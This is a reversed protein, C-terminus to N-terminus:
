FGRHYGYATKELRETEDHLVDTLAKVFANIDGNELHCLTGDSITISYDSHKALEAVQSIEAAEKRSKLSEIICPLSSELLDKTASSTASYTVTYGKLPAKLAIIPPRTSSM